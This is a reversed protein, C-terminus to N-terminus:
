QTVMFNQCGTPDCAFCGGCHVNCWRWVNYTQECCVLICYPSVYHNGDSPNTTTYAEYGNPTSSGEANKNVVWIANHRITSVYASYIFKIQISQIGDARRSWYYDYDSARTFYTYCQEDIMANINPSPTSYNGVWVRVKAFSMFYHPPNHTSLPTTKDECFIYRTLLRGDEWSAMQVLYYDELYSAHAKVYSEVLSNYEAMKAQIYQVDEAALLKAEMDYVMQFAAESANLKSALEKETPIANLSSSVFMALGDKTEEVHAYITELQTLTAIREIYANMLNIYSNVASVAFDKDVNGQMKDDLLEVEIRISEIDSKMSSIMEQLDVYTLLEDTGCGCSCDTTDLGSEELSESMYITVKETSCSECDGFIIGSFLMCIMLVMVPISIYKRKM